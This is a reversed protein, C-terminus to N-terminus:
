DLVTLYPPNPGTPGASGNPGPPGNPGTSILMFKKKKKKFSAETHTVDKKKEKWGTVTPPLMVKAYKPLLSSPQPLALHSLNSRRVQGRHHYVDPNRTDIDAAM